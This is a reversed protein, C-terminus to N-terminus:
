TAWPQSHPSLLPSGENLQNGDKPSARHNKNDKVRRQKGSTEPEAQMGRQQSHLCLGNESSGQHTNRSIVNPGTQVVTTSHQQNTGAELHQWPVSFGM